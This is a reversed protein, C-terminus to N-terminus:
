SLSDLRVELGKGIRPFALRLLAVLAAMRENARVHVVSKFSRRMRRFATLGPEMSVGPSLPGRPEESVPWCRKFFIELLTGSPLSPVGSSIALATTNRAESSALKTVPASHNTSTPKACTYALCGVVRGGRSSSPQTTSLSVWMASIFFLFRDAIRIM